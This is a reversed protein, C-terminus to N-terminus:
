GDYTCIYLQSSYCIHYCLHRFAQFVFRLVKLINLLLLSSNLFANMKWKNWKWNYNRRFSKIFYFKWIGCYFYESNHLWVVCVYCKWWCYKMILACDNAHKNSNEKEKKIKKQIIFIACRFSHFLRSRHIGFFFGLIFIWQLAYLFHPSLWRLCVAM